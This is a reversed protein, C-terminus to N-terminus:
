AAVFRDKTFPKGPFMPRICFQLATCVPLLDAGATSRCVGSAIAGNANGIVKASKRAWDMYGNYDDTNVTVVNMSPNGASILPLLALLCLTLLKNM